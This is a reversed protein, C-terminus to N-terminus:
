VVKKDCHLHVPCESQKGGPLAFLWLVASDVEKEQTCYKRTEMGGARLGVRKRYISKPDKVHACMKPSHRVSSLPTLCLSTQVFLQSPRVYCVQEEGQEVGLRISGLTKPNSSRSELWQAVDGTREKNIHEFELFRFCLHSSANVPFLDFCM